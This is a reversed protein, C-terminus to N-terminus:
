KTKIIKVTHSSLEQDIVNLIYIGDSWETLNLQFTSQDHHLPTKFVTRGLDDTVNLSTFNSDDPLIINLVDQVPNPFVLIEEEGCRVPVIDSFSTKGDFDVQKLRYFVMGHYRRDDLYDYVILENSIGAGDIVAIKEFNQQDMSVELEFYDNEWESSTEWICRQGSSTCDIRFDILDIGLPIVNCTELLTGFDQMTPTRAINSMGFTASSKGESFDINPFSTGLDNTTLTGAVGDCINGNSDFKLMDFGGLGAVLFSGSADEYLGDGQRNSTGDDTKETQWIIEGSSPNIKVLYTDSYAGGGASGCSGTVVYNGDSAIIADNLYCVDIRGYAKIWTATPIGATVTFRAAYMNSPTAGETNTYGFVTYDDPGNEIIAKVSELTTTGDGWIMSWDYTLDEKIKTLMHESGFPGSYSGGVLWGTNTGTAKTLAYGNGSQTNLDRMAIVTGDAALHLFAIDSNTTGAMSFTGDPNRIISCQTSYESASTGVVRTWVHNGSADLKTIMLDTSGSAILSASSTHGAIVYGGDGSNVIDFAMDTGSEGITKKWLVAGGQNTKVVQFDLGNNTAYGAWVYNGSPDQLVARAWGDILESVYNTPFISTTFTFPGVWSSTSGGCESRVYYDYTTGASLGSYTYPNDTTNNVTPTGTPSFGTTGLEIDWVSANGNETWNLIATVSYPTASLGSPNLLNCAPTAFAFPGVWNSQMSGCDSRVYYEYSTSPALGNYTYPNQSVDNQTPTGTPSFGATGLEIDWIASAGNETWSLDAQDPGIGSAGLSSPDDCTGATCTLDADWGAKTVSGDSHFKFTLEGGLATSTFPGPITTGCYKGLSPSAISPGDFIELYDYACSSNNEIDFSNFTVVLKGGNDPSITKTFDQSNSYNSSIGGMDYFKADCTSEATNNNLLITPALAVINIDFATSQPAPWTSIIIYYTNGATLSVGTLSPNGSSNTNFDVCTGTNPCGDTIFVGVYSGTNSLTVNVTENATPTYEYVFDDGNMYSSSCANSSSYDDGFGFTTQGTQNYPLSGITVPNSCTSGAQGLVPQVGVLLIAVLITKHFLNISKM